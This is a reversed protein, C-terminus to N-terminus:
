VAPFSLRKIGSGELVSPKLLWKNPNYQSRHGVVIAASQLAPVRRLREYAILTKPTSSLRVRIEKQYWPSRHSGSPRESGMPRYALVRYVLLSLRM